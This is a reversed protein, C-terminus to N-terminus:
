LDLMKEPDMDPDLERLNRIDELGRLKYKEEAIIAYIYLDIGFEKSMDELEQNKKPALAGANDRGYSSVSSNNTMEATFLVILAFGIVAAYKLLFKFTPFPKVFIGNSYSTNEWAINASRMVKEKLEFSAEPLHFERLATEPDTNKNKPNM